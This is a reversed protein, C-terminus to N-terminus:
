SLSGGARSAVVPKGCALDAIVLGFPETRHERLSSTSSANRRRDQV